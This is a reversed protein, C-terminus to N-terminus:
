SDAQWSSVSQHLHLSNMLWNATQSQGVWAIILAPGEPGAGGGIKIKFIQQWGKGEDEEGHICLDGTTAISVLQSKAAHWFLGVLAAQSKLCFIDSHHGDTNGCYIHSSDGVAVSYYTAAM